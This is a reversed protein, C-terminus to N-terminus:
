INEKVNTNRGSMIKLDEEAKIKEERKRKKVKGRGM